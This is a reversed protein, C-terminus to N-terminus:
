ARNKLVAVPARTSRSLLIEFSPLSHASISKSHRLAWCAWARSTRLPVRTLLPTLAHFCHLPYGDNKNGAVADPRHKLPVPVQLDNGFLDASGVRNVNAALRIQSFTATDCYETQVAGRRLSDVSFSEPEQCTRPMRARPFIVIVREFLPLRSRVRAVDFIIL